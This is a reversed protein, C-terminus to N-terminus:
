PQNLKNNASGPYDAARGVRPQIILDRQSKKSAEDGAAQGNQGGAKRQM